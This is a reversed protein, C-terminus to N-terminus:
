EAKESPTPKYHETLVEILPILRQEGPKATHLLNLLLIFITPRIILPFVARKKGNYVIKNVQFFLDLSVM